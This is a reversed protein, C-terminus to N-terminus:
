FISFLSGIKSAIVAKETVDTGPTVISNKHAGKAVHWSRGHGVM